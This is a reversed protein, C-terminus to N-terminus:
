PRYEESLKVYQERDQPHTYPLRCFRLFDGENPMDLPQGAIWVCGDKVRANSPLLGGHIRKTVLRKSFEAPGTRIALIVGWQAPPLVIFLDLKIEPLQWQQYRDQGKLRQCERLFGTPNQLYTLLPYESSFINPNPDREPVCVIEIDKPEPKQRRISGAISIRQCFRELEDTVRAAYLSAERRNM